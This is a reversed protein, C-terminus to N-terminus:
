GRSMHTIPEFVEGSASGAMHVLVEGVRQEGSEIRDIEFPWEKERVVTAMTVDM